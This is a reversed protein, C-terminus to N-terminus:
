LAKLFQPLILDHNSITAAAQTASRDDSDSLQMSVFTM